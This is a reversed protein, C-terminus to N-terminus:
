TLSSICPELFDGLSDLSFIAYFIKLPINLLNFVVFLRKTKQQFINLFLCVHCSMGHHQLSINIIFFSNKHMKHCAKTKIIRSSYSISIIIINYDLIKMFISYGIRWRTTFRHWKIKKTEIGAIVVIKLFHMVWQQVLM